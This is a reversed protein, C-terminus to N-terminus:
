CFLCKNASCSAGDPCCSLLGPLLIASLTHTPSLLLSIDVVCVGVVAFM